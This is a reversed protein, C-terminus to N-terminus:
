DEQHLPAPLVASAGSARGGGLSRGCAGCPPGPPRRSRRSRRRRRSSNRRSSSRKTSRRRSSSPPSQPDELTAWLPFTSPSAGARAAPASAAASAALLHGSSISPGAAVAARGSLASAISSSSMVVFLEHLLFHMRQSGGLWVYRRTMIFSAKQSGGRAVIWPAVRAVRAAAWTVSTMPSSALHLTQSSAGELIPLLCNQWWFPLNKSRVAQGSVM